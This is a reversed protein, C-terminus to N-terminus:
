KKNNKDRHVWWGDKKNNYWWRDSETKMIVKALKKAEKTILRKLISQTWTIAKKNGIDIQEKLSLLFELNDADKTIRSEKTKREEYETIIGQVEKGFFLGATFDRVAQEERRENYKQHVYNLDSVRAEAFDHFMCMQVVKGVDVDKAMKALVFGIYTVRNLHEAVSQEGSGLFFFVQDHPRLLCEQKM